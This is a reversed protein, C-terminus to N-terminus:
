KDLDMRFSVIPAKRYAELDLGKLEPIASYEVAGRRIIKSLKLGCGKANLGGSLALLEKRATEKMESFYDVQRCAEKYLTVAEIWDCGTKEVYDRETLPPPVLTELCRMFEQEKALMNGIYEDDRDVSIHVLADQFTDNYSVYVVKSVGTVLMQHQLQAMYKEPVHGLTAKEHDAAGPCKIEFVLTPGAVNESIGDLSAILWDCENHQAVIPIITTAFLRELMERVMPEKRRGESMASNDAQEDELDLKRCWLKYPTCWPSEGMIIPAESAGICKKRLALWEASGQELGEIIRM